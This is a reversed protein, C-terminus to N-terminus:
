KDAAPVLFWVATGEDVKSEIHLGGGQKELMELCLLLGLGVGTEDNTGATSHHLNTQLIKDLDRQCIGVGSDAVTIKIWKAPKSGASRSMPLHDILEANVCVTGESPTFKIGNSVLNRSVMELMNKDALVELRPDIQNELQVGKESAVEDWLSIINEIVDYLNFVESSFTLLGNHMMTWTLLNQLLNYTNKASNYIRGAMQRTDEETKTGIGM